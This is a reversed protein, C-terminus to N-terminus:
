SNGNDADKVLNIIEQYKEWADQAAPYKERLLEEEDIEEATDNGWYGDDIEKLHLHQDLLHQWAIVKNELDGM